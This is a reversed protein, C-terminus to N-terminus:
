GPVKSVSDQFESRTLISTVKKDQLPPSASGSTEARLTRMQLQLDAVEKELEMIRSRESM